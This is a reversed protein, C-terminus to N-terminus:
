EMKLIVPLIFQTKVPIGEKQAPEIKPFNTLRSKILSDIKIKDYNLSDSPFLPEFSITANPYISVKVQITDIIKVKQNISDPAIKQQILVTMFNFFCEKKQEKDLLSDCEAVSPYVTVEKWDIEKLRQQLLEEESPVRKEFYQCSTLLFLFSLLSLFKNM